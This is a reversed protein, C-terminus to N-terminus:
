AYPKDEKELEDTDKVPDAGAALCPKETSRRRWLLSFGFGTASFACLVLGFCGLTVGTMPYGEKLLILCVGLGYLFFLGCVAILLSGGICCANWAMRICWLAAGIGMTVMRTIGRGVSKVMHRFAGSFSTRSSTRRPSRSAPKAAPRVAQKTAPETAPRTAQKTAPETAPRTAQKTAPETAPRAVSGAASRTKSKIELSAAYTPASVSEPASMSEPASSSESASLTELASSAEPASTSDLELTSDLASISDLESYTIQEIPDSASPSIPTESLREEERERRSKLAGFAKKGMNWFWIFPKKVQRWLWLLFAALWLGGKRIGKGLAICAHKCIATGNKLIDKGGKKDKQLASSGGGPEYRERGDQRAAYDARVHYAELIEATLEPLSGFDAIAESETLGSEVKMDIHQEYEDLIDRLEDEQLVSLSQKLREIFERKDMSGGQYIGKISTRLAHGQDM